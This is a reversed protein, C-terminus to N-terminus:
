EEEGQYIPGSIVLAPAPKTVVPFRTLSRGVDRSAPDRDRVSDAKRPFWQMDKEEREKEKGKGKGKDGSKSKSKSKSKSMSKGDEREKGKGKGKEKKEKMRLPRGAVLPEVLPVPEQDQDEDRLTYVSKRNARADGGGGDVFPRMGESPAPQDAVVGVGYSRLMDDHERLARAERHRALVAAVDIGARAMEPRADVHRGTFPVFFDEGLLTPLYAPDLVLGHHGPKKKKKSALALCWFVDAAITALARDDRDRDRDRSDVREARRRNHEVWGAAVNDLQSALGLVTASGALASRARELREFGDRLYKIRVRRLSGDRLLPVGVSDGYTPYGRAAAWAKVNDKSHAPCIISIKSAKRATFGHDILAGLGCIAYPVHELALHLTDFLEVLGERTLNTTTWVPQQTNSTTAVAPFRRSHQSSSRTSPSWTVANGVDSFLGMEIQSNQGLDGQAALHLPRESLGLNTRLQANFRAANHVSSSPDPKQKRPFCDICSTMFNFVSM